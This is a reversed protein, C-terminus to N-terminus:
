PHFDRLLFLGVLDFALENCNSEVVNIIMILSLLPIRAHLFNTFTVGFIYVNHFKIGGFPKPNM